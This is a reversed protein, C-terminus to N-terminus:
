FRGTLALSTRGLAVDASLSVERRLHLRPVLVGIAGGVLAGALVDTPFHKAARIRLTATTSTAVIGAGLTLYARPSGPQEVFAFYSLSASVAAVTSTHGSFHSLGADFTAEAPDYSAEYTYPRPRRVALKVLTTTAQTVALTEVFVGVRRFRERVRISRSAIAGRELSFAAALAGLGMSGILLVDSAMRPGERSEARRAVGRDLFYVDSPDGAAPASLEHTVFNSSAGVVLAGLTVPLDVALDYSYTPRGESRGREPDRPAQEGAEPEQAQVRPAVTTGPYAVLALALATAPSTAWRRVILFTPMPAADPTRRQSRLRKRLSQVGAPTAHVARSTARDDLVRPTAFHERGQQWPLAWAYARGTSDTAGEDAEGKPARMARAAESARETRAPSPFRVASKKRSSRSADATKTMPRVTRSVRKRLRYEMEASGHINTSYPIAEAM